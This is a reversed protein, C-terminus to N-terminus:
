DTRLAEIPDVRAARRAPAWGAVLAVAALVVIGGAFSLPDNPGVGFLRDRVYQGIWFALAFGVAAGLFVLRISDGLVLAVIRAPAAGLAIRVGIERTRRAVAASMAAFLGIAALGLAAAGLAVGITM